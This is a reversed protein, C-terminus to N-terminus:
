VVVWLAKLGAAVAVRGAVPAIGPAALATLGKVMSAVVAVAVAAMLRRHPGEVGAAAAGAATQGPVILVAGRVALVATGVPVAAVLGVYAIDLVVVAGAVAATGLM